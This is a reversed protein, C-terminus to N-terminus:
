INNLNIPGNKKEYHKLYDELAKNLIDKITQREWYALAKVKALLDENVIFTARTEGERVGKQSTKTIERHITTPRGPKPRGPQEKPLREKLSKIADEQPAQKSEGLLTSLGGKFNKKSM